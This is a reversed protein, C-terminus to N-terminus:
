KWKTYTHSSNNSLIKFQIEKKKYGDRTYLTPYVANMLWTPEVDVGILKFIENKVTQENDGASVIVFHSKGGFDNDGKYERVFIKNPYEITREM